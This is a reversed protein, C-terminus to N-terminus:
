RPGDEENANRNRRDQQDFIAPAVILAGCFGLGGADPAQKTLLAYAIQGFGGLLGVVRATVPWWFLFDDRRSLRRKTM